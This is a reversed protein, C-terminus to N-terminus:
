EAANEGGSKETWGMDVHIGKKGARLKAAGEETVGTQWLYVTKLNDMELLDDVVADTVKTGYLNLYELRDLDTMKAVAADSLVTKELHLTTLSKMQGILAGSRDSIRTKGLRLEVVSGALPEFLALAEDDFEDAVNV